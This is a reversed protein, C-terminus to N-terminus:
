AGECLLAVGGWFSLSRTDNLLLSVTHEPGCCYIGLDDAIAWAGVFQLIEQDTVRKETVDFFNNHAVQM